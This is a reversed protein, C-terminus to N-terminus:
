QKIYKSVSKQGSVGSGFGKAPDPFVIGGQLFEWDLNLTSGDIQYIGHITGTFNQGNIKTFSFWIKDILKGNADKIGTSELIVRGEMKLSSSPSTKHTKTWICSSDTKVSIEFNAFSNREAEPLGTGTAKWTGALSAMKVVPIPTPVPTPTPTATEDKACSSMVLMVSVTLMSILNSKKM